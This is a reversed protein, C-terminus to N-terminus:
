GTDTSPSHLSGRHEDWVLHSVDAAPERLARGIARRQLAQALCDPDQHLWAGRGSRSASPDVVAQSGDLVVRVLVSRPARGRCGVCTRVPGQPSALGNDPLASSHRPAM